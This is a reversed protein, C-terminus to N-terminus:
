INIKESITNILKLVANGVFSLLSNMITTSWSLGVIYVLMPINCCGTIILYALNTWFSMCTSCSFPKIAIPKKIKGNSIWGSFITTIEDVFHLQDIVVVWFLTILFCDIM